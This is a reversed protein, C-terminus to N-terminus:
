HRVLHIAATVAAVAVLTILWGQWTVPRWGLGVTKRRFWPKGTQVTGVEWGRSRYISRDHRRSRVSRYLV